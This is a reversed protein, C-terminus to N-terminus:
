ERAAAKYLKACDPGLPFGGQSSGGCAKADHRDMYEGCTCVEVFLATATNKIGKGCHACPTRDGARKSNRRYDAGSFPRMRKAESMTTMREEADFEV